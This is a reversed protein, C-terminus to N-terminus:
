IVLKMFGALELLKSVFRSRGAKPGGVGHATDAAATKTSTGRVALQAKLNDASLEIHGKIQGVATSSSFWKWPVDEVAELAALGKSENSSSCIGSFKCAGTSSVGLVPVATSRNQDESPSDGKMEGRSSSSTSSSYHDCGDDSGQMPTVPESVGEDRGAARWEAAASAAPVQTRVQLDAKAATQMDLLQAQAKALDVQLKALEAERAEREAAVAAAVRAAAAAEWQAEAAVAAAVRAAAAEEWQAEAAEAAAIMAAAAAEGAAKEAAVAAAVKVAAAAEGAEREAAVAAEAAAEVAAYWELAQETYAIFAPLSPRLKPDAQLCAAIAARLPPCRVGSLDAKRQLSVLFGAVADVLEQDASKALDLVLPHTAKIEMATAAEEAVVTPKLARYSMIGLSGVDSAPSLAFGMTATDCYPALLDYLDPHQSLIEAAVGTPNNSCEEPGYVNSAIAQVSIEMPTMLPTACLTATRNELDEMSTVSHDIAKAHGTTPDAMMNGDKVDGVIAHHATHFHHLAYATQLSMHVVEKERALPKATAYPQRHEIVQGFSMTGCDECIVDILGNEWVVAGYIKMINDHCKEPDLQDLAIALEQLM